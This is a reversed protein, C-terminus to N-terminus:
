QYRIRPDLYAYLIDVVLNTFIFMSSIILVCTQVLPFDRSFIADVILRGVGPWNFVTETIVTGGLLHVFSLAGMTLIPPLANKLADKGVVIFEPSGMIRAMKIYESGLVDLMSSRSLRVIYATFVWGLTVTPMVMNTWNGTGSTPLLKLSVSFILILMIGLWFVPIGQGMLAFAKGFSDFWRGVKFASLVGVPLGIFVALGMAAIALQVTNPFRDLFLDLCSVNWRLSRGFDGRIVGSIYKWYQVYLPKDLGLTERIQELDEKTSEPSAMLQVPDGSLRALSFVIITIGILCVISQILRKLIYRKM